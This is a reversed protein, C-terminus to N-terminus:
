HYTIVDGPMLILGLIDRNDRDVKVPVLRKDFLRRVQVLPATDDSGAERVVEGVQAGLRAFVEQGNVKVRIEANVGTLMPFMICTANPSTVGQCSPEAEANLEQTADDLNKRDTSSLIIAVTVPDKSSQSKKLFLRFYAFSHPLPSAVQRASGQPSSGNQSSDAGAQTIRVQGNVKDPVIEYYVTQVGKIEKTQSHDEDAYVPYVVRLRFDPTLDIFQNLDFAGFRLVYALFPQFPLKEAISAALAQGEGRHLCGNEELARLDARLGNIYQVPDLAIPQGHISGRPDLAVPPENVRNKGFGLLDSDPKARLYATNGRWQIGIPTRDIDCGGAPFPRKRAKLLRVELTGKAPLTVGPPVLIETSSQHSLMYGHVAPSCGALFIAAVGLITAAGLSNSAM